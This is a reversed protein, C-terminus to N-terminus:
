KYYKRKRTERFAAGVVILGIMGLFVYTMIDPVGYTAGTVTFTAYSSVVTEAGQPTAITIECPINYQGPEAEVPVNVEVSLTYIGQDQGPSMVIKIPMAPPKFWDAHEKFEINEIMITTQGSWRIEIKATTATGAQIPSALITKVTVILPGLTATGSSGGGGGGGSIQWKIKLIKQSAFTYTGTLIKTSSSYTATTFGETEAPNGKPGCYLKLTAVQGTEGQSTITLIQGELNMDTIRGGSTEAIHIGWDKYIIQFTFNAHHPIVLYNNFISSLTYTYNYIYTPKQTCDVVLIYNDVSDSFQITLNRSIFTVSSITANSAVHWIQNNLSFPYCKCTLSSSKDASISISTQNVILGQLWTVTISYTGSPIRLTAPNGSWVPQSSSTISITTDSLSNGDTDVTQLTWAYLNFTQDQVRYTIGYNNDNVGYLTYAGSQSANTQSLVFSFWGTVNSSTQGIETGNPLAVAVTAQSIASNDYAYVIQATYRYKGNGLYEVTQLNVIKLGDWIVYVENTDFATLGYLNDTISSIKFGYKGATSKTLTDNLSCSGSFASNDYAYVGSVSISATEGINIRNDAVTLTLQLKDWICEITNSTFTSLGYQSESISQVTFVWKGVSNKTTTDNLNVTVYSTAAAGDYEYVATFSWQMASGVDIRSDSISLSIQVRDFIVYVVNSEFVTLGYNNDTMSDITYYYKGVVNKTLTDNLSYTGSFASNDYAYVGSVSISATTGVDIRNDSVTLTFQVKDWICSITNSSFASLGYQSETISSVTFHWLGVSNQTTTDNLNVTVYTTADSSDYEYTATFSWSMASGVDIRNDSISLSIQIRDWIIEKAGAVDNITTLGYTSDSVESVLFTRKGITSYSYTIEWRSDVSDWTMASGNVYLTGKSGDFTTSDYEYVATFWVTQTSGLDCRDDSVGGDTIKIRDVIVTVTQNQVTNEDTVAYINYSYSGVASEGSITISFDGNADITTTSGKVVGSLEVKATIGSTDEPPTTTGEYYITGTFTILQSPDIRSDDVSASSIILDDEFYFLNTQSNSGSAGQSDYVLTNTAIISVYGEPFSWTLKIKFSLKYATSNVSTKFSSSADLICYNNTDQYESFTDTASDWKLIISNSIEITANVFDAVGDGDNITANLFFYQNAYVTSPTQFEGIVPVQNSIYTITLKPRYGEGQEYAYVEVYEKTSPTISNIDRDSRLCLKTTGTKNIWSIGDSNLQIDNYGSCTFSATNFQGGNGSYHAYYYDGAQLPEHPYTPQGNQVVINFDDFSNDLEGYVSLTASTITASAGLSSTDFFLFARSIDYQSGPMWDQGIKVVFNTDDVYGTEADHATAYSTQLGSYIYGDSATSYFTATDPDVVLREGIGLTWNAFTFIVKKGKLDISTPQLKGIEFMSMQDEFVLFDATENYFLFRTGNYTGSEETEAGDVKCKSICGALDWVQRIMVTQNAYENSKWIVWHKLPSGVRFAYTVSLVGNPKSTNRTANIFVGTENQVINFAIVSDLTAEKWEGGDWVWLEWQESKVREETMNVDWFKAVGSDYVEGSILGTRVVYCKKADNREYIYDVWHTGNWVYQSASEWRHTGNGYDIDIYNPGRYVYPYSDSQAEAKPPSPAFTLPLLSFILALLLLWKKARLGKM